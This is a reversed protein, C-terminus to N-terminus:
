SVEKLLIVGREVVYKEIFIEEVVDGEQPRLLNDDKSKGGTFPLDSNDDRLGAQRPM